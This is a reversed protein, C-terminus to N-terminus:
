AAQAEAQYLEPCYRRHLAAIAERIAEGAHQKGNRIRTISPQSCGCAGAIAHDRLGKTNLDKIQQATDM